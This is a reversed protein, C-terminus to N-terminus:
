GGGEGEEEVTLEVDDIVLNGPRGSGYYFIIFGSSTLGTYTARMTYKQWRRVTQFRKSFAPGDTRIGMEVDADFDSRMWASLAYTRGPVLAIRAGPQYFSMGGSPIEDCEMRLAAEGSHPYEADKRWRGKAGGWISGTWGPPVNYTRDERYAGELGGNLVWVPPGDSRFARGEVPPPRRSALARIAEGPLAEGYLRVDRLLGAWFDTKEWWSAYCGIAATTTRADSSLAGTEALAGAEEGDIFLRIAKGDYTMALHTWRDPSLREKSVVRKNSWKGEADATYLTCVLPGTADLARADEFNSEMGLYLRYPETVIGRNTVAGKPVRPYVWATATVQRQERVEELLKVEVADSRGDFDRQRALLAQFAKGEAAVCAGAAALFSLAWLAGVGCRRM